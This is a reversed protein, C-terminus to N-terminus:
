LLQVDSEKKWFWSNWVRYYTALITCVSMWRNMSLHVRRKLKSWHKLNQVTFTAKSCNPRQPRSQTQNGVLKEQSQTTISPLVNVTWWVRSCFEAADNTILLRRSLALRAPIMDHIAQWWKTFGTQSTQTKYKMDHIAQRWQQVWNWTSLRM